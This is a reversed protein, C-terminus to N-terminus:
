PISGTSRSVPVTMMPVTLQCEGAVDDRVAAFVGDTDGVHEGATGNPM